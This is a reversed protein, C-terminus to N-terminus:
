SAKREAFTLFHKNGGQGLWVGSLEISLVKFGGVTDGEHVIARNIVASKAEDEMAIAKLAMPPASASESEPSGPIANSLISHTVSPSPPGIPSFPDRPPQEIWVTATPDPSGLPPPLPSELTTGSPPSSLPVMPAVFESTLMDISNVYVAVGAAVCLGGVLLPNRLARRFGNDEDM